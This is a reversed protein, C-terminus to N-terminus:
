DKLTNLEREAESVNVGKVKYKEIIKTLLSKMEDTTAGRAKLRRYYSISSNYDNRATQQIKLVDTREKRVDSINIGSNEYKKAIKDLLLLRESIGAGQSVRKQYFLMSDKFSKELEDKKKLDQMEEDKVVSIRQLKKAEEQANQAEKLKAASELKIREAEKQFKEAELLSKKAEAEAKLKAEREKLLDAEEKTIKQKGFKINLAIKHTGLTDNIGSLPWLFAYDFSFNDFRISSGISITRWRRSGLSLGGRIAINKQSFWKEAGTLINIDSDKSVTEFSFLYDDGKYAFGGRYVASLKDTNMLGIDPKTINKASIGISINRSYSYFLGVDGTIVQSKKGNDFVPDGELRIEDGTTNIATKTYDDSGFARSLNKVSAGASIYKSFPYSYSLAIATEDYLNSLSLNYWSIGPTGYKETPHAYGVFSSGISSNDDLGMFLRGYNSTLEAKKLNSLGAPNYFLANADDSIATFAGGLGQPRAGINLEDFAGYLGYTTLLLYYTTLLLIMISSGVGSKRSGPKVKNLIQYNKGNM